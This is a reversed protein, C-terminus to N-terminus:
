DTKKRTSCRASLRFARIIELKSNTINWKTRILLLHKLQEPDGKLQKTNSTVLYILCFIINDSSAIYVFLSQFLFSSHAPFRHHSKRIQSITNIRSGPRGSVENFVFRRVCKLLNSLLPPFFRFKPLASNLRLPTFHSVFSTAPVQFNGTAWSASLDSWLHSYNGSNIQVFWSLDPKFIVLTM